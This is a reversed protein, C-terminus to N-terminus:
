TLGDANAGALTVATLALSRAGSAGGGDTRPAGGPRLLPSTFIFFLSPTFVLSSFLFCSSIFPPFFYLSLFSLLVSSMSTFLSLLLPFCRSLCPSFLLICLFPYPSSIFLSIHPFSLLFSLLPSCPSTVAPSFFPLFSFVLTLPFLHPFTFTLPLLHPLLSPSLLFPCFLPPFLSIFHLPSSFSFFVFSCFSHSSLLFPLLPSFSSPTLPLVPLLSLRYLISFFILCLCLASVLPPTFLSLTVTLKKLFGSYSSLYVIILYSSTLSEPRQM